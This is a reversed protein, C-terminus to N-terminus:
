PMLLSLSGQSKKVKGLYVRPGRHTLLFVGFFDSKLPGKLFYMPPSLFSWGLIKTRLFYGLPFLTLMGGNMNTGGIHVNANGTYEGEIGLAIM